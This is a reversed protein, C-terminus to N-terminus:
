QYTSLEVTKLFESVIKGFIDPLEVHIAHGADKVVALEATPILKKMSQNIATFKEDSEGALLLVPVELSQLADWWSPQSGTGMYRLSQALGARSHSLRETHIKERVNGPLKKQSQFLPINEWFDVFAKVGGNEIRSALHEDKRRRDERESEDSLGPSASELTLSKVRDPYAIAFSLATRGGMSYGILHVKQWQYYDLLRALDRSFGEMDKPAGSDTRGHGPLDITLSLFNEPLQRTMEDWTGGTGTFGHLYVVPVGDGKLEYWYATDNITQYM